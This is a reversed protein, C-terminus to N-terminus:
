AMADVFTGKEAQVADAMSQQFEQQIQQELPISQTPTGTALAGVEAKMENIVAQPAGLATADSLENQAAQEPSAATTFALKPNTTTLQQGLQKWQQISLSGTGGLTLAQM